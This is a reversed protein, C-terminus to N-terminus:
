LIYNLKHLIFMIKYKGYSLFSIHVSTNMMSKSMAAGLSFPALTFHFSVASSHPSSGRSSSM